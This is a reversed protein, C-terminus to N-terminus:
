EKVGYVAEPDKPDIQAVPQLQSSPLGTHTMDPLGVAKAVAAPDFGVQILSAAIEARLKLGVDKADTADINQLPVRYQDGNEIPAM